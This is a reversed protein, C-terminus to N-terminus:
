EGKLFSTDVVKATFKQPLKSFYTSFAAQNNEFHFLFMISDSM